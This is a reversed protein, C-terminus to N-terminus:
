SEGHSGVGYEDDPSVERVPVNQRAGDLVDAVGDEGYAAELVPEGQQRAQTGLGDEHIQVVRLRPRQIEDLLDAQLAELCREHGHRAGIIGRQGDLGHAGAGAIKEDLGEKRLRQALRDLPAEGLVPSIGGQARSGGRHRLAVAGGVVQLQEEPPALSHVRHFVDHPPGGVGVDRDQDIALAPHALLHHRPGDMLDGTTQVLGEDLDIAGRQGGLEQLGLEEPVFLAGERAGMASLRALELEGMLAGKEEILDPLHREAQLGLEQVDDLVPLEEAHAPGLEDGRVHSQDGGGIPIEGGQHRAPLEALVEVIAEVHDRNGNGRQSRPPFLDGRQRLVEEALEAELVVPLHGGDRALRHAQELLVRPRTIDALELVHDPAEHHELAFREDLFLDREPRLLWLVVHSRVTWAQGLAGCGQSAASIEPQLVDGLLGGHGGLGGGDFVDELPHSPVAGFGRTQEFDAVLGKEVLDSLTAQITM